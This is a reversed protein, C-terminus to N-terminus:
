LSGPTMYRTADKSPRPLGRGRTAMRRPRSRTARDCFYAILGVAAVLLFFCLAIRDINDM